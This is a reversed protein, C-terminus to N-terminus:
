FDVFVKMKLQNEHQSLVRPKSSNSDSLGSHRDQTVRVIIACLQLKRHLSTSSQCQFETSLAANCAHGTLFRNIFCRSPPFESSLAANCAPIRQYWLTVYAPQSETPRVIQYNPQILYESQDTVVTASSIIPWGDSKPRNM